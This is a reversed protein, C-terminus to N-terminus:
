SDTVSSIDVLLELAQLETLGDYFTNLQYNDYKKDTTNKSLYGTYM